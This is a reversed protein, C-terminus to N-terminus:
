LTAHYSLSEFKARGKISMCFRYGVGKKLEFAVGFDKDNVCYKLEENKLDITDGIGVVVGYNVDISNGILKRRTMVWGFAKGTHWIQKDEGYTKTAFESEIVGLTTKHKIKKIRFLWHHLHRLMTTKTFLNGYINEHCRGRSRIETDDCSINWGKNLTDWEFGIIFLLILDNVFSPICQSFMKESERIFGHVVVSKDEVFQPSDLCTWPQSSSNKAKITNDIALSRLTNSTSDRIPETTVWELTLPRLFHLKSQNNKLSHM